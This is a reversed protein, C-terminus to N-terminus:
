ATEKCAQQYKSKIGQEITDIKLQMDQDNNYIKRTQKVQLMHLRYLEHHDAKQMYEIVQSWQDKILPKKM